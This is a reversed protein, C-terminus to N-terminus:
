LAGYESAIAGNITDAINALDFFVVVVQKDAILVTLNDFPDISVHPRSRGEEFADLGFVECLDCVHDVACDCRLVALYLAPVDVRRDKKKPKNGGVTAVAKYDIVVVGGHFTPDM